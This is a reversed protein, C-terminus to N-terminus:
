LFSCVVLAALASLAVVTAQMVTLRVAASSPRPLWTVNARETEDYMTFVRQRM